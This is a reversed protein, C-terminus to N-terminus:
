RLLRIANLIVAMAGSEHLIAGGIPSIWGLGAAVLSFINLVVSFAINQRINSLTRRSLAIIEPIKTLDDSLLAVDSTEIAVDTGGTGMAVGIDAAALAPADNIGDGIFTVRLGKSQWERVLRLKEEPFLSAHVEDIGAESAIAKAAGPNDGTLMVLRVNQRKLRSVAEKAEPRVTDRVAILGVIREDTALGLVTHGTSELAEIRERSEPTLAV